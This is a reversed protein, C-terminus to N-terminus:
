LEELGVVTSVQITSCHAVYTTPSEERPLTLFNKNKETESPPQTGGTNKAGTGSFSIRSKM